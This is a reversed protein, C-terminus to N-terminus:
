SALAFNRSRASWMTKADQEAAEISKSRGLLRLTIALTGTVAAEGYEDQLEGRWFAALRDVNELAPDAEQRPDDLLRPWRETSLEENHLSLVETPKNARREIEGGCGRYVSLHPQGLIQGAEAHTALFGRHFIGQLVHPAAFPNLLRPFTNLPSRLGLIPKLDLLEKLRPSMVELPIYTFNTKEVQQAAQALSAAIPFGLTQLTDKTYVRGPTHGESGHMVVRVGNEALLLACLIFWPMQLRKGAYSSWDLDVQPLATPLDLTQRAAEVFGAVEEPTEEQFRLLMMFAGIQEPRVENRLIMAMADRAEDFTLPRSLTKGRGLIAVYQAFPHQEM